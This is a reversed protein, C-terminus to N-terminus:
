GRRVYSAVVKKEDSHDFKITLKEGEALRVTGYGFKDHYVRDGQKFRAIAPDTSVVLGEPEDRPREPRVLARQYRHDRQDM